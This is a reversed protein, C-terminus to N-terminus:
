SYFGYNLCVSLPSLSAHTTKLIINNLEMNSFYSYHKLFVGWPLMLNIQPSNAHVGGSYSVARRQALTLVYGHAEKMM